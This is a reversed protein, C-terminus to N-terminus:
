LTGQSNKPQALQHCFFILRKKNFLISTNYMFCFYNVEKEANWIAQLFVFMNNIRLYINQQQINRHWSYIVVLVYSKFSLLFFRVISCQHIWKCIVFISKIRIHYIIPYIQFWIYYLVFGCSLVCPFRISIDIIIYLDKIDSVTSIPQIEKKKHCFFIKM